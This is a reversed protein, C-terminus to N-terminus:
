NRHVTALEAILGLAQEGPWTLLGWGFLCPVILVAVFAFPVAAAFRDWAPRLADSIMGDVIRSGGLPPIPLANFLALLLNLAVL